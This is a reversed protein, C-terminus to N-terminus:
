RKDNCEKSGHGKIQDIGNVDIEHPGERYLKWGDMWGKMEYKVVGTTTKM